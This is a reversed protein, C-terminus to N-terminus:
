PLSLTELNTLGRRRCGHVVHFATCDDVVVLVPDGDGEVRSGTEHVVGTIGADDVPGHQGPGQGVFVIIRMNSTVM